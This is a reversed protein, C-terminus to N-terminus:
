FNVQVGVVALKPSALAATPAQTASYAGTNTASNKTYDVYVLTTKSLNYTSGINFMKANTGLTDYSHNGLKVYPRAAGLPLYAGLGFSKGSNFAIATGSAKESQVGGALIFSGFDYNLTTTLLSGTQDAGAEAKANQYSMVTRLPGAAYTADIGQSGGGSGGGTNGYATTGAITLAGGLLAPTSYRIARNYRTSDVSVACPNAQNTNATSSAQSIGAATGGTASCTITAVAAATIAGLQSNGGRTPNAAFWAAGQTGTASDAAMGNFLFGGGAFGYFAGGQQIDLNTVASITNTGMRGIRVEGFGGSVGAWAGRNFLGAGSVTGDTLSPQMELWFNGKMGGGLDNAGVFRLRSATTSAVKNTVAGTAATYSQYGGDIMGSITMTSQAFAGTAVLAAVAILTKKM